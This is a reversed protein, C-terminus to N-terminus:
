RASYVDGLDYPSLMPTPSSGGGFLGAKQFFIHFEPYIAAVCVLSACCVVIYLYLLFALGLRERVPGRVDAMAKANM